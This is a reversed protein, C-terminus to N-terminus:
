QSYAGSKIYEYFDIYKGDCVSCQDSIGYLNWPEEPTYFDCEISYNSQDYHSLRYIMFYKGDVCYKEPKTCYHCQQSKAYEYADM